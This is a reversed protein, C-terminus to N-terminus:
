ATDAERDEPWLLFLCWTEGGDSGWRHSFTDVLFLGRGSVDDPGAQKLRAQERGGDTVSVRLEEDTCSVHLRVPYGDSHRIANTVLESVCLVIKEVLTEPIGSQALFIATMKRMEGVRMPDPLFVSQFARLNTPTDACRSRAPTNQRTEQSPKSDTATVRNTGGDPPCSTATQLTTMSDMACRSTVVWWPFGSPSLTTLPPFLPPTPAM